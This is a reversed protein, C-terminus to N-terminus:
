KKKSGNKLGIILIIILIAIIGYWWFMFLNIADRFSWYDIVYRTIFYAVVLIVVM